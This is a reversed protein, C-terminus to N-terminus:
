RPFQVRPFKQLIIQVVFPGGHLPLVKPLHIQRHEITEALIVQADFFWLQGCRQTLGDEFFVIAPLINM